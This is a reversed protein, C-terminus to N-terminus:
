KVFDTNRGNAAMPMTLGPTAFGRCLFRMDSTVIMGKYLVWM